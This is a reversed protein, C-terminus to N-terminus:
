LSAMRQKTMYYKDNMITYSDSKLAVEQLVEELIVLQETKGNNYLLYAEQNSDQYLVSEQDFNKFAFDKLTDIELQNEVLVVLSVEKSGKYVGLAEKFVLGVDEICDKLTQTRQRNSEFTKSSLEASIIIVQQSIRMKNGKNPNVLQLM